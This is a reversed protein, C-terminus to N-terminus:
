NNFSILLLIYLFLFSYVCNQLQSASNRNLYAFFSKSPMGISHPIEYLSISIKIGNENILANNQEDKLLNIKLLNKNKNIQSVSILDNKNKKNSLPLPLVENNRVWLENFKLQARSDWSNNQFYKRFM